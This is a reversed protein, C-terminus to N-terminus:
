DIQGQVEIGRTNTYLVNDNRQDIGGSFDIVPNIRLSYNEEDLYFLDSKRNYALNWWSKENENFKNTGFQWNDNLLYEYNFRDQASWSINATDLDLLFNSLASRRIPKYTTKLNNSKSSYLIDFRDILHYYDRNYNIYTSQACLQISLLLAFLSFFYKQM